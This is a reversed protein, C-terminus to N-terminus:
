VTALHKTTWYSDTSLQNSSSHVAWCTHAIETDMYFQLLSLIPLLPSASPSRSNAAESLIQVINRWKNNMLNKRKGRKTQSRKKCIQRKKPFSCSGSLQHNTHESINVIYPTGPCWLLQTITERCLAFGKSRAARSVWFLFSFFFLFYRIWPNVFSFTEARNLNLKRDM